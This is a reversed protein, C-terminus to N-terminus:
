ALKGRLYREIKQLDDGTAEDLGYGYNQNFLKELFGLVHKELEKTLNKESLSKARANNRMLYESALGVVTERQDATRAEEAIAAQVLEPQSMRVQETVTPPRVEEPEPEEHHPLSVTGGVPRRERRRESPSATAAAGGPPATPTSTPRQYAGRGDDDEDATVIGTANCFAYRKGYTQASASKQLDNIRAQPDIPARFSSPESHGGVHTLTCTVVQAPPDAEFATDFRYSLGNARLHPRAVEVIVDLPAYKYRDAQKTKPVAPCESQFASLAEFYDARAQEKRLRERMDLLREMTEVGAGAQIAQGILAEFTPVVPAVTQEPRKAIATEQAM